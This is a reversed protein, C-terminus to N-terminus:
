SRTLVKERSLQPYPTLIVVDHEDAFNAQLSQLNSLEQRLDISADMLTSFESVAITPRFQALGPNEQELYEAIAQLLEFDERVKTDAGAHLFRVAARTGDPVAARHV